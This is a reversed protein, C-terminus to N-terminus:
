SIEPPLVVIIGAALDVDRVYSETFLVFVSGEIVLVPVEATDV